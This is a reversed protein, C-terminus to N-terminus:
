RQCIKPLLHKLFLRWERALSKWGKEWFTMYIMSPVGIGCKDYNLTIGNDQFNTTVRDLNAENEKDDAGVM